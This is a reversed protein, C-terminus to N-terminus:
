PLNIDELPEFTVLKFGSNTNKVGINHSLELVELGENTSTTWEIEGEFTMIDSVNSIQDLSVIRIDTVIDYDSNSYAYVNGIDSTYLNGLEVDRLKEEGEEISIKGLLMNQLIDARQYILDEVIKENKTNTFGALITVLICVVAFMATITLYKKDM